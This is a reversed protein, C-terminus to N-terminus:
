ASSNASGSGTSMAGEPVGGAVLERCLAGVASSRSKAEYTVGNITAIARWASGRATRSDLIRDCTAIITMHKVNGDGLTRRSMLGVALHRQSQSWSGCCASFICGISSGACGASGCRDYPRSFLARNFLAQERVIADDIEGTTL